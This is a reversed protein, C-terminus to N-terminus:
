FSFVGESATGRKKEETLGKPVMKCVGTRIDFDETLIKRITERDINVQKAIKRVTLRLNKVCL